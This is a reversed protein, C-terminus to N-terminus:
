ATALIEENKEYERLPWLIEKGNKHENKDFLIYIKDNLDYFYMIGNISLISWRNKDFLVVIIRDSGVELPFRYNTKGKIGAEAKLYLKYLNEIQTEAKKNMPAKQLKKISNIKDFGDKKAAELDSIKWTGFNVMEAKINSMFVKWTVGKGFAEKKELMVDFTFNGVYMTKKNVKYVYKKVDGNFVIAGEFTNESSAIILAM